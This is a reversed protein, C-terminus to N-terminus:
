IHLDVQQTAVDEAEAELAKLREGQGIPLAVAVALLVLAPIPRWWNARVM